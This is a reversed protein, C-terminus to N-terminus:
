GLPATPEGGPAPSSPPTSGGDQRPPPEGSEGTLFRRREVFEDRDIEGRAYREELIRLASGGGRGTVFGQGRGRFIGVLVLIIVLWFLFSFFAGLIGWGFGGDGWWMHAIV